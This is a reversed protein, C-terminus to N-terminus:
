MDGPSESRSEQLHQIRCQEKCFPKHKEWDRGALDANPVVHSVGTVCQKQCDVSCYLALRCRRCIRMPHEPSRSPDCCSCDTWSCGASYWWGQKIRHERTVRLKLAQQVHAPDDDRGEEFGLKRGYEVWTKIADELMAHRTNVCDPDDEKGCTHGLNAPDRLATLTPMWVRQTATLLAAM